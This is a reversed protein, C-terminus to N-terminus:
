ESSFLQLTATKPPQIKTLSYIKAGRRLFIRNKHQKIVRKKPLDAEIEQLFDGGEAANQELFSFLIM